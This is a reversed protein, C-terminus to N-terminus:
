GRSASAGIVMYIRRRRAQPDLTLTATSLHGNVRSRVALKIYVGNRVGSAVIAAAHPYYTGEAENPKGNDM